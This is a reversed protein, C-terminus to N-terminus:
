HFKGYLEYQLVGVLNQMFAIAILMYDTQRNKLEDITNQPVKELTAAYAGWTGMLNNCLERSMYCYGNDYKTIGQWTKLVLYPIGGITKWGVCAYMHGWYLNRPSLPFVGDSGVSEFDPSWQTAMGVIRREATGLTLASRIGDFYDPVSAIPLYAPKVNKLALSDLTLPWYSQNAAGVETLSAINAPESAKPLLGFTTAVKYATRADTEGPPVNLIELTKMYNYGESYSVLDEAKGIEAITYATCSNPRGDKNQDPFNDTEVIYEDTFSGAVGFLKHFAFRSDKADKLTPRLSM